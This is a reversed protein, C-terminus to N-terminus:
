MLTTFVSEIITPGNYMVLAMAIGLVAAMVSQRVVGIGMGVLFSGIAIAKGLSGTAWDTFKTVITNFDTDGSPTAGTISYLVVLSTIALLGIVLARKKM